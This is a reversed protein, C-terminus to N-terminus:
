FPMNEEDDDEDAGSALEYGSFPVSNRKKVKGEDGEYEEITVTVLCTKEILHEPKLDIEGAVDVGLRSCILKVRPLAKQSFVM